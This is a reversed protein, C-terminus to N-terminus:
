VECIQIEVDKEYIQMENEPSIEGTPLFGVARWFAEGPAEATLYMRAAGNEAFLQELRRFMVKGYGKLRHMPKVYFEMIYGYEPKIFGRHGEHDVKGYLFGILKEGSYALELHRDHAGQIDICSQVWREIFKDSLPTGDPKFAGIERIYKLMIHKFIECHEPNDKQVKIFNIENM